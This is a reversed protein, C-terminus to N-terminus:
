MHTPGSEALGRGHILQTAKKTAARLNRYESNLFNHLVRSFEPNRILFSDHGYPTELNLYTVIANARKLARVLEKSQAPPYLWDSEFSVVLFRAQVRRLV